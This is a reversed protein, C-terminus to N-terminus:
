EWGKSQVGWSSRPRKKVVPKPIGLPFIGHLDVLRVYDQRVDTVCGSALVIRVSHPVRRDNFICFGPEHGVITGPEGKLPGDTVYVKIGRRLRNNHRAGSWFM